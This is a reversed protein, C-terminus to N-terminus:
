PPVMLEEELLFQNIPRKWFVSRTSYMPYGVEQLFSGLCDILGDADAKKPVQVSFFRAYSRIEKNKDDKFCHLLVFVEDKVNGADTSGDMLFSAKNFTAMFCSRQHQAIYHTFIRASDKTKYANGLEVGHREELSYLAPYKKFAMGEKALLYCIDFKREMKELTSKDMTLLSRVIPSYTTIPACASKAQEM